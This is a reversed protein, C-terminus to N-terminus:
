LGSAQAERLLEGLVPSYSFKTMTSPASLLSVLAKLLDESTVIGVITKADDTVLFASIKEDIMGQAAERLSFNQNVTIVPWSMYESILVKSMFGPRKPDMARKVDRDSIIGVVVGLDDTVPLHRFENKEMLEAADSMALDWRVSITNKSMNQKVSVQKM